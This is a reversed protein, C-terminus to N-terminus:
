PRSVPARRPPPPASGQVWSVSERRDGRDVEQKWIPAEAKIRDIAERCADFAAERHAASVTVVVGPEGLPVAGVRHEAAAAETGSERLCDDLIAAIRAEAMEVYAEYRLEAVERTTGQFSVIAGVSRRGVLDILRQASLPEPTVRAHVRPGPEGSGGSIPPILALEDGARIPTEADAYELNVAMRPACAEVLQGIRPERALAELADSVTAEDELDVQVSDARARERLVAFLRVTM